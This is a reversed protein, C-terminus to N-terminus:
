NLTSTYSQTRSILEIRNRSSTKRFISYLHTKVTNPSINLQDAIEKNQAGRSVLGIITKERKTLTPFITDTDEDLLKTQQTKKNRLLDNIAKNMTTRKFWYEEKIIADFGKLIIDPRDKTYFVGKVNSLLATKECTIGDSANFLITNNNAALATINTPLGKGVQYAFLDILLFQYSLLQSKDPLKNGIELNIDCAKILGTFRNLLTLHSEGIIDVTSTLIFARLKTMDTSM